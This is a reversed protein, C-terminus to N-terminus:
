LTTETTTPVLRGCELRLVEAGLRRPQDPDHSVVVLTTGERNLTLLSREFLPLTAADLGASPEDLLLLRPRLVMARALAVRRSEGGSLDRARRPGFGDLGVTSLAADIRQQQEAGTIHRLKLGFALNEIVSGDFLLPAQEVLTVQQRGQQRQAESLLPRGNLALRGQEPPHLLALIRLLSSKGAGNSGCLAYVGGPQLTLAPIELCFTGRRDRLDNLTLLPTTM